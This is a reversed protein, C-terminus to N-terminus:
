PVTCRKRQQLRHRLMSFGRKKLTFQAVSFAVSHYFRKRTNPVMNIIKANSAPTVMRLPLVLFKTPSHRWDDSSRPVRSTMKGFLFCSAFVAKEHLLLLLKKVRRDMLHHNIITCQKRQHFRYRLLSFGRKPTMQGMVIYRNGPSFIHKM